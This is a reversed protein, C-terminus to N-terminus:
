NVHKAHYQYSTENAHYFVPKLHNINQLCENISSCHEIMNRIIRRSSKHRNALAISKQPCGFVKWPGQCTFPLKALGMFAAVDKAPYGIFLGIEHPFGKSSSARKGLEDILEDLTANIDYGSKSLLVRIGNHALHTELLAPNFCFLLISDDTQRIVKFTLNYLTTELEDHYQQWLQYLNRGCCRQRNPLAILNAPKVDALVESCQFILHATLCDLPDSFRKTLTM